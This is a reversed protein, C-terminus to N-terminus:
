SIDTVETINILFRRTDGHDDAVTVLVGGPGDSSTSYAVGDVDHNDLAFKIDALVNGEDFSKVSSM